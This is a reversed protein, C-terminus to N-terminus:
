LTPSSFSCSRVHIEHFMGNSWQKGDKGRFILEDPLGQNKWDCVARFLPGLAAVASDGNGAQDKKSRQFVMNFCWARFEAFGRECMGLYFRQDQGGVCHYGELSAGVSRCRESFSWFLSLRISRTTYTEGVVVPCSRQGAMEVSDHGGRCRVGGTEQSEEVQVM